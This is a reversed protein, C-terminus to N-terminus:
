KKLVTAGVKINTTFTQISSLKIGNDTSTWPTRPSIWNMHLAAHLSSQEIRKGTNLSAQIVLRTKAFFIFMYYRTKTDIAVDNYKICKLGTWWKVVLHLSFCPTCKLMRVNYLLHTYSNKVFTEGYEWEADKRKWATPIKDLTGCVDPKLLKVCHVKSCKLM